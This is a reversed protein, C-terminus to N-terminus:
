IKLNVLDNVTVIYKDDIDTLINTLYEEDRTNKYYLIFQIPDSARLSRGFKQIFPRENGDLQIIIGADIDVLNQGEQLMGVAYLSNIKKNNFDEIIRLSNDKKSHISNNNDLLEAQEISTCFCIYRKNKLKNLIIKAFKTKLEGLYRKRKSGCQLWKNKIYDKRLSFYRRKWYEFQETLYQYKQYETCQIHLSCNTYQKKKTLYKWRDEYSCIIKQPKEKNGWEEIIEEKRKNNDLFLPILYIKPTALINNDIAEQLSIKSIKFKGFISKLNFIFDNSLTASLIIVNNAKLTEAIDLRLDSNIHHGEDFIIADWTSDKYKKLSAYCEITIDIKDNLPWKEFEYLWNQKHPIEAVVLLVKFNQNSNNAKENVLKIAMSSKGVGTAWQLIINNYNKLINFERSQFEEKTM